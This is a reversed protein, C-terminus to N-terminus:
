ILWGLAVAAVTEGTYFTLQAQFDNDLLLELFVSDKLVKIPFMKLSLALICFYLFKIGHVSKQRCAQFFHWGSSSDFMNLAHENPPKQFSYALKLSNSM